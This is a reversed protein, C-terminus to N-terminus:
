SARRGILRRILGKAYAQTYQRASGTIVVQGGTIPGGEISPAAVARGGVIMAIQRGPTGPARSAAIGSLRGFRAGDASTLRILVGWSVGGGEASPPQLRIDELRHVTMAESGLRYCATGDDDQLTGAACPPSAVAAVEQFTLPERLDAPGGGSGGDGDGDHLLLFGAVSGLVLVLATGAAALVIVLGRGGKRPPSPPYPPPPPGYPTGPPHGM